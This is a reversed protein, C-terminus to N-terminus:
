QSTAYKASAQRFAEDFEVVDDSDLEEISINVDSKIKQFKLFEIFSNLLSDNNGKYETQIFNELEPNNIQISLM